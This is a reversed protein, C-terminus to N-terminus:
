GVMSYTTAGGNATTAPMNIGQAFLAGLSRGALTQLTENNQFYGTVGDAIPQTYAGLPAFKTLLV